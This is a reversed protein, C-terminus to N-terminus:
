YEEDEEEEEGFNLHLIVEYLNNLKNMIIALSFAVVITVVAIVSMNDTPKYLWATIADNFYLVAAIILLVTLIISLIKFFTNM